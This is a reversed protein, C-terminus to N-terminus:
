NCMETLIAGRFGVFDKNNFMIPLVRRSMPLYYKLRYMIDLKYVSFPFGKNLNGEVHVM